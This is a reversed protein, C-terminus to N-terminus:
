VASLRLASKIVRSGTSSFTRPASRPSLATRIATRMATRRTTARTHSCTARYGSTPPRRRCSGSSSSRKTRTLVSPRATVPTPRAVVSMVYPAAPNNFYCTGMVAFSQPCDEIRWLQFYGQAVEFGRKKLDAVFQDVSIGVEGPTKEGRLFSGASATSAGWLTLLGLIFMLCFLSMLRTKM